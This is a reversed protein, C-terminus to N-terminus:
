SDLIDTAIVPQRESESVEFFAVTRVGIISAIINGPFVQISNRLVRNASNFNRRAASIHEEIDAYTRQADLMTKDSKLEPYNEVAVMLGSLSNQLQGELKFREDTDNNSSSQLINSRLRTIEELLEKEHSMFKKAIALINPILETRKKLQVDIGSFAEQMANRKTIISVYWAYFIVVFVVVIAIVVWNNSFFESM